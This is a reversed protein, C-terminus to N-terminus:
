NGRELDDYSALMVSVHSMRRRIPKVRGRAGFKFRKGLKTPGENAFITHVYLDEADLDNNEEANAIASRLLKAVDKASDQPMFDLMTLAEIASRGRVQDIVLRVKQVSGHLRNASAKVLTQEEM